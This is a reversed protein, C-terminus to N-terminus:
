WRGRSGHIDRLSESSMGHEIHKHAHAVEIVSLKRKRALSDVKLLIADNGREHGKEKGRENGREHVREVGSM